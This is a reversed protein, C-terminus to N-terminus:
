SIRCTPKSHRTSRGCSCRRDPRLCRRHAGIPCAMWRGVVQAEIYLSMLARQCGQSLQVARYGRPKLHESHRVSRSSTQLTQEELKQQEVLDLHRRDREAEEAKRRLADIRSEGDLELLKSTQAIEPDATPDASAIAEKLEEENVGATEADGDTQSMVVEAEPSVSELPGVSGAASVRDCQTRHRDEELHSEELITM